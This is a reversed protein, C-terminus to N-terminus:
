RRELYALVDDYTGAENSHLAYSRATQMWEGTTPRAIKLAAELDRTQLPLPVDAKMSERLKAEVARDVVASLDAGSFGKTKHALAAIDVDGAPRAALHVGLIAARAAEDPPPIFIVRDFRGPRRLADDVGWPANTAALILVGENSAKIGDLEALFQNVLQRMAGHRIDHRVAGIADVEDFFLVCPAARRAREFTDHLQRESEGLWMSLVEDIGVAIFAANIEGATARAIHTKGCGPPGYLLIGGGPAKGYAKFLDPQAFPHVIKMRIEDKVDEMGGVDRFTILPREAAVQELDADSDDAHAPVPVRGSVTEGAALAAALEPDSLSPDLQVAHTYRERAEQPHGLNLLIRALLLQATPEGDEALGEALVQSEGLKGLAFFAHALGLRASAGAGDALAQRFEAEAEASHGAALLTAALHERLPVNDPSVALADRLAGITAEPDM